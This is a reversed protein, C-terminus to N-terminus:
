GWLSPNVQLVVLAWVRQDAFLTSASASNLGELIKPCCTKKDMGLLELSGLLM